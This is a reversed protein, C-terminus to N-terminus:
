TIEFEIRRGLHKRLESNTDLQETIIHGLLSEQIEVTFLDRDTRSYNYIIDSFGALELAPAMLTIRSKM